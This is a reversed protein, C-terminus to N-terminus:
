RRTARAIVPSGFARTLGLAGCLGESVRAFVASRVARHLAMPLFFQPRLAVESFGHRRFSGLIESRRFCTFPRTNKEVAVKARFLSDSFLNFSRRDPYDVIVAKEAVRCLEAILDDWREVHPVLRFALVVPFSRDRFPLSLLECCEFSFAGPPLARDLRRRCSEDSGAVTVEFGAAALPAALQAHGGGVDLIKGRPFGALLDLVTRAQVELFYEGVPGAFRGAYGESSTEIDPPQLTGWPNATGGM